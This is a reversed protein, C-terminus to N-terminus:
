YVSNIGYVAMCFMGLLLPLGGLGNNIIHVIFLADDLVMWICADM